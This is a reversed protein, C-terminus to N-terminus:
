GSNSLPPNENNAQHGNNNYGRHRVERATLPSLFLRTSRSQWASSLAWAEGPLLLEGTRGEHLADRGFNEARRRLAHPARLM